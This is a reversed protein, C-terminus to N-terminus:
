GPRKVLSVLTKYIKQFIALCLTLCGFPMVVLVIVMPLGAIANSMSSEIFATWTLDATKWTLLICFILSFMLAFIDLVQRVQVPLLQVFSDARVHADQIQTYGASLFVSYLLLYTSLDLVWATPRTFYYRMVVEYSTVLMILLICIGAATALPTYAKKLRNDLSDMKKEACYTVKQSSDRTM